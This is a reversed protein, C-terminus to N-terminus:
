PQKNILFIFQFILLLSEADFICKTYHLIFIKWNAMQYLSPINAEFFNTQFKFWGVSYNSNLCFFFCRSSMSCPLHNSLLLCRVSFWSILNHIWDWVMAAIKWGQISFFDVLCRWDPYYHSYIHNQRQRFEKFLHQSCM